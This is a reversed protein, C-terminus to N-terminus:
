FYKYYGYHNRCIEDSFGGPSKITYINYKLIMFNVVGLLFLIYWLSLVHCSLHIFCSNFPATKIKIKCINGGTKVSEILEVNVERRKKM